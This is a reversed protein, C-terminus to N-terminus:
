TGMTINDKQSNSLKAYQDSTMTLVEGKFKQNDTGMYLGNVYIPSRGDPDIFAIPNNISFNYPSLGPYKKTLPDLSLWRGLMADYVRAGFDLDNGDGKIEDDKEQGNFHFYYGGYEQLYYRFLSTNVITLSHNPSSYKM